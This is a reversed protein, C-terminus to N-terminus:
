VLTEYTIEVKCTPTMRAYKSNSTDSTYIGIGYADGSEFLSKFASTCDVTETDGRAMTVTEVNGTNLTPKYSPQNPYGHTMLYIPVGSSLGSSNARTVTVLIKKITKGNVTSRMSSGFFWLGRYLGYTDWKGQLVDNTTGDWIGHHEAFSGSSNSTWSETKQVVTIPSFEGSQHDWTGTIEGGGSKKTPTAAYLGTGSGAITANAYAYHGVSFGSGKCNYIQVMSGYAATIGNTKSTNMECDLFRANSGRVYVVHDFNTNGFIICNRMELSNTGIPLVPQSNMGGSDIFMDDIEVNVTNYQISLSGKLYARQVYITQGEATEAQEGERAADFVTYWTSRDSSVEVLQDHYTRGDAYYHWIKLYDYDDNGSLLYVDVYQPEGGAHDAFMANSDSYNGDSAYDLVGDREIEPINSNINAPDGEATKIDGNLRVAQVEVWANGANATSGNITDKVYRITRKWNRVYISGYGLFGSIFVHTDVLLGSGIYIYVDHFLYQPLRDIAAQWTLLPQSETGKNGDNGNYPDVYYTIGSSSVNETGAFSSFIINQTNMLKDIRLEGFGGYDGSLEAINAGTSDRVILVGNVNDIGGLELTGGSANNFTIKGTQVLDALYGSGTGFSRWEYDGMSQNYTDALAMTGGILKIAGGTKGEPDAEILIGESDGMTVTGGGSKIKHTLLNMEEELWTTEVTEGRGLKEGLAKEIQDVKISVEELSGSDDNTLTERFSNLQVKTNEPALLDHKMELVRATIALDMKRDIIRVTDGLNIEKFKLGEIKALDLVTVKYSVEPKNLTQLVDWTKQLLAAPDHIDNNKYFGYRNRKTGDDASRGWKSLAAPDEVYIQGAPKPTPDTSGWVQDTFYLESEESETTNEIEGIGILATKIQSSDITRELSQLDRSWEFRRGADQGLQTYFNIQRKVIGQDTIDFSYSVEGEWREIFTTLAELVTKNKVTIDHDTTDEVIGAEWRTGSLLDPLVLSASKRDAFYDELYEDALEQIAHRCSILLVSENSGKSEQIEKVIFLEYTGNTKRVAATMEEEILAAKPHDLPVEFDLNYDGNLVEHLQTSLIPLAKPHDNSCIMTLQDTRDFIWIL